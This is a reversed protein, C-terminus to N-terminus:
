HARYIVFVHGISQVLECSLEKTVRAIVEQKEQPGGKLVKIKILSKQELERNILELSGQTLGNKGISLVPKLRQAAKKQESGVM